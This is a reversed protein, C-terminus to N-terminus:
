SCSKVIRGRGLYPIKEIYFCLQNKLINWMVPWRVLSEQWNWFKNLWSSTNGPANEKLLPVEKCKSNFNVVGLIVQFAWVVEGIEGWAGREKRWWVAWWWPRNTEEFMGIASELLLSKFKRKENGPTSKPVSKMEGWWSRYM